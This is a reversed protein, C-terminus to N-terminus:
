ISVSRLRPTLQAAIPSESPTELCAAQSRKEYSASQLFRPGAAIDGKNLSSTPEETAMSDRRGMSERQSNTSNAASFHGLLVSSSFPRRARVRLGNFKYRIKARGAPNSGVVGQNTALYDIRSLINLILVNCGRKHAVFQQTVGPYPRQKATIRVLEIACCELLLYKRSPINKGSAFTSHKWARAYSPQTLGNSKTTMYSLM